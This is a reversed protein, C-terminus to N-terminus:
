SLTLSENKFSKRPADTVMNGMIYLVAELSFKRNTSPRLVTGQGGDWWKFDTVLATYISSLDLGYV